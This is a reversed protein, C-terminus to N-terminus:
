VNEDRFVTAEPEGDKGRRVVAMVRGDRWIVMDTDDYGDGDPDHFHEILDAVAGRLTDGDVPDFSTIFQEVDRVVFQRRIIAELERREDAAVEIGFRRM